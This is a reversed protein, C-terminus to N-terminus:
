PQAPPNPTKIPHYWVIERECQSGPCIIRHLEPSVALYSPYSLPQSLMAHSKMNLQLIDKVYENTSWNRRSSISM